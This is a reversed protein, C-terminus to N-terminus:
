KTFTISVKNNPDKFWFGATAPVIASAKWSGEGVYNGAEDAWGPAVVDGMEDKAADKIYYYFTNGIGLIQGTTPDRDQIQICPATKTYDDEYGVTTTMGEWAIKDSNLDFAMPYPNAILAWKGGVVGAPAATSEGVVAGASTTAASAQPDKFWVAVGPLIKVSAKWSGEGVYNGAEDAWGPAVVDGMEDKAADKIYYYFTNGVGLINGSADRDQIQICPALTKYDDEYGVTTTFGTCFEQLDVEEATINEFQVGVM